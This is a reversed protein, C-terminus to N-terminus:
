LMIQRFDQAAHQMAGEMVEGRGPMGFPLAAPTGHACSSSYKRHLTNPVDVRGANQPPKCGEASIHPSDRSSASAQSDRKSCAVHGCTYHRAM